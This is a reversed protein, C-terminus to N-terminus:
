DLWPLKKKRPRSLTRGKKGFQSIMQIRKEVIRRESALHMRSYASQQNNLRVYLSRNEKNIRNYNKQRSAFNLTNISVPAAKKATKRMIEHMKELLIRNEREIETYKDLYKEGELIQERKPKHQIHRYQIVPRNFFENM